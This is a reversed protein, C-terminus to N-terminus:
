YFHAYRLLVQKTEFGAQVEVDRAVMLMLQDRPTVWHALEAGIQHNRRRTGRVDRGDISVAGGHSFYHRAAVYTSPTIDFSLHTQLRYLPDQSLTRGYYDDNDGYFQAEITSELYIGQGLGVTYNALASFAWRNGGPSADARDSDYHGVPVTVYGTVGAYQATEPDNVLAFSSGLRPDGVGSVRQEPAVTGAGIELETRQYPLVFQPTCLVGCADTFVAHRLAVASADLSSGPVGDDDARYSGAKMYPNLYVLSVQTGPPAWIYDRANTDIASAPRAALAFLAAAALVTARAYGAYRRVRM